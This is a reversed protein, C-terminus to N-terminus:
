AVSALSPLRIADLWRPLRLPLPTTWALVLRLAGHMLPALFGTICLSTVTVSTGMTVAWALSPDPHTHYMSTPAALPRVLPLVVYGVPVGGRPLALVIAGSQGEYASLREALTTVGPVLTVDGNDRVGTRPPLLGTLITVHSPLTIPVPAYAREVRTGRAALADLWPTDAGARGYSGLRDARVTDLTVLVVHRPRPSSSCAVALAALPGILLLFRGRRRFM